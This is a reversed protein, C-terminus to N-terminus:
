AVKQKIEADEELVAIDVELYNKYWVVVYTGGGGFYNRVPRIDLGPYHSNLYMAKKVM